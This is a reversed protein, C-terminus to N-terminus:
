RGKSNYYHNLATIPDISNSGTRIVSRMGATDDYSLGSWQPLNELREVLGNETLKFAAGPSGWGHLIHEFPIVNQTLSNSNWFELLAFIFIEDPLSPQYGRIFRYTKSGIGEIIGLEVLPCDFSDEIPKTNKEDEPVYTRLFVDVDRNLTSRSVMRTSPSERLVGLLWEQLQERTFESTNWRTFALFWTSAREWRSVLLWHLLWLTGHNELYPDFGSQAFLLKGLETVRFYGREPCEILRLTECWHRISTVMNKGVGLIVLADDRLFINSYQLTYRVGKPLWTYRFPFTEHGSFSYKNTERIPKTPVVALAQADTSQQM